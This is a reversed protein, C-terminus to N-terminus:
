LNIGLSAVHDSAVKLYFEYNLGVPFEEAYRMMPRANETTPVIHGKNCTIIEGTEGEFYAWRAVKGVYETYGNEHIKACGGRVNRVSVFKNIETCGHITQHIPIGKTLLAVVADSCVEVQPNKKLGAEGFVGKMKTTGDLKVAIYNNVDRSYLAAYETPELELGSDQEWGKVIQHLLANQERPSWIVVGDTNASVVNFGALTVREILMLLALQGSVTTQIGLEPYYLVSWPDLTKGFTGNVVIKLAEAKVKHGAHKADLREDVITGYIPIFVPGISPPYLGSALILKPYYSPVDFDYLGYQPNAVVSQASEQSHLGGIGMKYAGSGIPIVMDALVEPMQIYGNEGIVFETTEVARRVWQLDKTLYQIWDPMQFHFRHFPRITPSQPYFGTRRFTEKKFISEAMQADSKSRLDLHYRPGLNERLQINELHANYLLWTNRLDNFCYWFVIRQQEFGLETGPKFPLEMMLPSGLRGAMTKLSPALPTLEILDIHNIVLKRVRFDRAVVWGPEQWRIIRDTAKWYDRCDTGYKIAIAAIHRDYKEGNFDILLFNRLVWDLKNKNFDPTEDTSEFYVCKGSDISMFCICWYNPYSEIDWVLREKMLAAQILENDTFVPPQFVLAEDVYPLYDERLWVPDPPTRVVKAKAIKPPKWDTWFLGSDDFRM